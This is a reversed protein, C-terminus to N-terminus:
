SDTLPIIKTDKSIVNGPANYELTVKGASVSAKVGKHAAAINAQTGTGGATLFGGGGIIDTVSAGPDAAAESLSKSTEQGVVRAITQSSGNGAISRAPSTAFVIKGVDSHDSDGTQTSSAALEIKSAAGLLAVKIDKATFDLTASQPIALTKGAAIELRAGSALYGILKDFATATAIALTEDLRLTAGSKVKVTGTGLALTPASTASFVLAGGSNIVVDQDTTTLTIASAGISLTGGQNVVVGGHADTSIGVTFVGDKAVTIKKGDALAVATTATGASGEVVVDADFTGGAFGELEGGYLTIKGNAAAIKKAAGLKLTGDYVKISRFTADNAAAATVTGGSAAVILDVNAPLRGLATLADEATMTGTLAVTGSTVTVQRNDTTTNFPTTTSIGIAPATIELKTKHQDDEGNQLTILSGTLDLASGAGGTITLKKGAAVTSAGSKWDLRIGAPIAITTDKTIPPAVTVEVTDYPFPPTPLAATFGLETLTMVFGNAKVFRIEDENLGAPGTAGTSGAPGAPGECGAFVLAITILVALLASMVGLNKTKM